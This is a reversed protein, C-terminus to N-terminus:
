EDLRGPNQVRIAGLAIVEGTVAPVRNTNHSGLGVRIRVQMKANAIPVTRSGDPVIIRISNVAAIV